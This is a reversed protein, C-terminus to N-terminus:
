RYPYFTDAPLYTFYRPIIFIVDPM